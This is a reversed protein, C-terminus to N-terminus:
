SPAEQSVPHAQAVIGLLRWHKRRSLPRTEVVRVRDGVHAENKEDHAHLRTYRRMEKGLLPHRVRREIRVVITKDMADSVVRGVREKRIGRKKPTSVESM